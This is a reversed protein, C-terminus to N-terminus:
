AAVLELSRRARLTGDRTFDDGREFFDDNM